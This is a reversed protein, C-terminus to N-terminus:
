KGAITIGYRPLIEGTVMALSLDARHWDIIARMVRLQAARLEDQRQLVDVNRSKGLGLRAQEVALNQEALDVARVAIAYRREAVQIAAVGLAVTQVIQKRLDTANVAITERQAKASRVAARAATNGLTQQYTLTVAGSYGYSTVRDGTPDDVIFTPGLTVALDLSALTGHETVEVQIKAGEELVALRAMDPSSAIAADVLAQQDWTRAPIALDVTSAILMESPAVPLGVLRRINISTNLVVLEGGLVEEERTAIAQEVPITEAKAVGGKDIGALTVKLREHALELSGRRIAIDREAAILDLYSAVVAGVVEIASTRQAIEAADLNKRAIRENAEIVVNGRGRLLPQVLGVTVRSDLSRAVGGAGMFAFDQRTYGTDAHLAITGGTSIRRGLDVALGGSDTRSFAGGAKRSSGSAEVALAWDSWAGASAINAEAVQMDIKALAMAPSSTITQQLLDPLGMPTAAGAIDGLMPATAPAATVPKATAGGSGGGADQPALRVAVTIPDAGAIPALAALGGLAATLAVSLRARRTM